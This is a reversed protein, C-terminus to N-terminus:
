GKVGGPGLLCCTHTVACCGDPLSALVIAGISWSHRGLGWELGQHGSVRLLWGLVSAICTIVRLATLICPTGLGWSVLGELCGFAIGQCAAQISRAWLFVHSENSGAEYAQELHTCFGVVYGFSCCVLVRLAHEWEGGCLICPRPGWM